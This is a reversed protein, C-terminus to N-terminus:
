LSEVFEKIAANCSVGLRSSDYKSVIQWALDIAIPDIKDVGQELTDLQDPISESLSPKRAPDECWEKAKNYRWLKQQFNYGSLRGYNNSVIRHMYIAKAIELRKNQSSAKLAEIVNVKFQNAGNTVAPDKAIDISSLNSSNSCALFSKVKEAEMHIAMSDVDTQKNAAPNNIVTGPVPESEWLLDECTQPADALAINAVCTLVAFVAAKLTIRNNQKVQNEGNASLSSGLQLAM